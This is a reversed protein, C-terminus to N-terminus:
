LTLTITFTQTDSHGRSDSVVVTVAHSGAAVDNTSDADSNQGYYDWIIKGTRPEIQMGPPHQTLTYTLPTHWDADTVVQYVYIPKLSSNATFNLGYTASQHDTFFLDVVCSGTTSELFPTTEGDRAKVLDRLDALSGGLGEGGVDIVKRGDIFIWCNDNAYGSLYTALTEESDHLNYELRFHLELTFAHSNEADAVVSGIDNRHLYYPNSINLGQGGSNESRGIAFAFADPYTFRHTLPHGSRRYFAAPDPVPIGMLPGGELTSKIVDKAPGSFSGFGPFSSKYGEAVHPFDRLVAPYFDPRAQTLPLSTIALPAFSLHTVGSVINRKLPRGHLSKLLDRAVYDGTAPTAIFTYEYAGNVLTGTYDAYHIAPDPILPDEVGYDRNSPWVRVSSIASYTSDAYQLTMSGGQNGLLYVKLPDNPTSDFANGIFAPDYRFEQAGFRHGALKVRDERFHALNTKGGHVTSADEALTSRRFMEWDDPLDDEDNDRRQAAYLAALTNGASDTDTALKHTGGFRYREWADPLGDTDDDQADEDPYAFPDTQAGTTENYNSVGDRDYDGFFPEIVQDVYRLRVFHKDTNCDFCLSFEPPNSFSADLHNHMWNESEGGMILAPLRRWRLQTLDDTEEIVYLRGAKGWFDITYRWPTESDGTETRTISLAENPALWEEPYSFGPSAVLAAVALALRPSM